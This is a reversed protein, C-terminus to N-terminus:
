PALDPTMLPTLFRPSELVGDFADDFAIQADTRLLGDADIDVERTALGLAGDAASIDVSNFTFTGAPMASAAIFLGVRENDIVTVDDLRVKGMPDLLHIGDGVDVLGDSDARLARSKTNEIRVNSIEVGDVQKALVGAGGCDDIISAGEDDGEIVLGPEASGADGLAWIGGANLNTMRLGTFRTAADFQVVGHGFIDGFELGRADSSEGSIVLGITPFSTPAQEGSLQSTRGNRFHLNGLTTRSNEAFGGLGIFESVGGGDWDLTCDAFVAGAGVTDEVRLETASVTSGRVLLGVGLVDDAPLTDLGGDVASHVWVRALQVSLAGDVVVGAGRRADVEVDEISLSGSGAAHLGSNQTILRVNTISTTQEEGLAACVGITSAASIVAPTPGESRIMVGPPVQFEGVYEGAELLVEDSPCANFLATRLETTTSVKWISKRRADCHTTPSAIFESCLPQVIPKVPSPVQGSTQGSTSCGAAGILLLFPWQRV